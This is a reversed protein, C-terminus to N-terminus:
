FLIWMKNLNFYAICFQDEEGFIVAINETNNRSLSCKQLIELSQKYISILCYICDHFFVSPFPCILQWYGPGRIREQGHFPLTWCVGALLSIFISAWYLFTFLLLWIHFLLPLSKWEFKLKNSWSWRIFVFDASFDKNSLSM